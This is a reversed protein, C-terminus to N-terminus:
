GYRDAAILAGAGAALTGVRYGAESFATM